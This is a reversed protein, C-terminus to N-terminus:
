LMIACHLTLLGGKRIDHLNLDYICPEHALDDIM